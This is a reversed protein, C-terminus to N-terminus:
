NAHTPGTFQVLMFQNNRESIRHRMEQGQGLLQIMQTFLERVYESVIKPIRSKPVQIVQDEHQVSREPVIYKGKLPVKSITKPQM